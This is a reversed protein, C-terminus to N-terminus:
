ESLIPCAYERGSSGLQQSVNEAEGQKLKSYSDFRILMDRIFLLNEKHEKENLLEMLISNIEDIHFIPANVPYYVYKILQDAIVARHAMMDIDYNILKQM